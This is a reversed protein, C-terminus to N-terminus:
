SNEARGSDRVAGVKVDVAVRAVVADDRRARRMRGLANLARYLGGEIAAESRWVNRAANGRLTATSSARRADRHRDVAGSPHRRGQSPVPDAFDLDRTGFRLHRYRLELYEHLLLTSEVRNLSELRWLV